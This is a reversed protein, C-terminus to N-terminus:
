WHTSAHPSCHCCVKAIAIAPRPNSDAIEVSCSTGNGSDAHTYQPLQMSTQGVLTNINRLSCAIRPGAGPVLRTLGPGVRDARVATDPAREGEVDLVVADHLDRRRVAVADGRAVQADLAPEAELVHM